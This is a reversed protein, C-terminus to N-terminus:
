FHFHIKKHSGAKPQERQWVVCVVQLSTLKTAHLLAKPTQSLPASPCLWIHRYYLSSTSCMGFLDFRMDRVNEAM